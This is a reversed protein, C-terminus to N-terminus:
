FAHCRLLSPFGASYRGSLCAYKVVFSAGGTLGDSLKTSSRGGRGRRLSHEFSPSRSSCGPLVGCSASPPQTSRKSLSTGSCPACSIGFFVPTPWHGIANHAACPTANSSHISAIGATSPTSAAPSVTCLVPAQFAIGARRFEQRLFAYDFRANHAVLIRGRLREQLAESLEAFSPADSVLPDGIGTIREVSTPIPRGPDVLSSWEEKEEGGDVMCLGIEIIRDRVPDGGTTELDLFALNGCLM